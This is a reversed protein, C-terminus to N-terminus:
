TFKKFALSHFCFFSKSFLKKTGAKPKYSKLCSNLRVSSESVLVIILIAFKKYFLLRKNKLIKIMESMESFPDEKIFAV